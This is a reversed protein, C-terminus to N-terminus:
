AAARASLAFDRPAVMAGGAGDAPSWDLWRIDVVEGRHYAQECVMDKQNGGFLILNDGEERVFFAVHGSSGPAQPRLVVVAGHVPETLSLEGWGRWDAARASNLASRAVKDNGSNKMCFNVFSACWHVDDPAPGRSTSAHFQEIQPNSHGAGEGEIEKVGDFERAKTLWPPEGTSKPVFRLHGPLDATLEAVTGLATVLREELAALMTGVTANGDGGLAAKTRLIEAADEGATALAEALAIGHDGPLIELAAPLGVVHAFYLEAPHPLRSGEPGEIKLKAELAELATATAIAAFVAQSVPNFRDDATIGFDRGVEEVMRAWAKESFQFPGFATDGPVGSPRNRMGSEAVAIAALLDRNVQQVRSQITLQTMFAKLNIAEDTPPSLEPRVAIRDQPLFGQESKETGLTARVEWWDPADPPQGVKEVTFGPEIRLTGKEADMRPQRFLRTARIVQFM